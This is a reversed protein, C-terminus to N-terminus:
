KESKEREELERARRTARELVDKSPMGDKSRTKLAFLTGAVFACVIVFVVIATTM